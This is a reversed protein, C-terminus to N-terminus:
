TPQTLLTEFIAQAIYHSAIGYVFDAFVYIMSRTQPVLCM